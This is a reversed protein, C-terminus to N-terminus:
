NVPIPEALRDLALGALLAAQSVLVSDDFRVEPAHVGPATAPDLDPPTAGVFAMAGPVRQLIKSFDESGMLPEHDTMVRDAGFVRRAVAALRDTETAENVTVPYCEILELSATVRHAAALNTVTETLGDRLRELSDTSLTRVTGGLHASDPIVNSASGARVETVSIVVPELASIRRSPYAHLATVLDALAPIPDRAEHPASGHGGQGHLGIRLQALGALLPGSRTWVTGPAGAGVHLAYAAVPPEDLDTLLGEDLMVQAGDYGEEGPQFVLMVRGALQERHRVLIRAAGLLGAMHLDHGCAHMNDNTAAFSEGSRERIPLADMDARLLVTPGPRGGEIVSVVSACRRGRRTEVGLASLERLVIAQTQPLDLGVEPVQHLERRIGTLAAATARADALIGAITIM